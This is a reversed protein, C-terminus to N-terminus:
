KQSEKSTLLRAIIVFDLLDVQGDVNVDAMKASAWDDRDKTKAYRSALQAFDGIDYRGNGNLDGSIVHIGVGIAEFDIVDGHSNGLELNSVMMQYNPKAPTLVKFTLRLVDQNDNIGNKEGLSAYILEKVGPPSHSTEVGELSDMLEEVDVLELSKHDYNLTFGFAYIDKVDKMSVLVEVSNQGEYTFVTDSTFTVTPAVPEEVAVIDEIMRPKLQMVGNYEAVIGTVEVVDGNEFAFNSFMLGTRNDVRVLVSDAGKTAIFEFTGYTNVSELESITVEEMAVIQGEIEKGVEGPSVHLSTPMTGEGIVEISSLNSIQFEDNYIATKGTIRVNDGMKLDNKNSSQFVYTGATTDQLYFGAGGWAGPVSTVIGEITVEANTEAERAKAITVVGLDESPQGEVELIRNDKTYSIPETFSQIFAVTAELDEPGTVMNKGLQSIPLYKAGTATAMFNNTTVTYTAEKDIPTGDPLLIDVVKLTASDWTYSFGAISYDPGYGPSIQANMITELDAGTIELKVLVNNFPQINFLDDYTIPGADLNDRIGGGNMLAFDSDMAWKMGDALLNGLPTDGDNSYDGMMEIEAEGVVENLIPAVQELYKALIAAVEPDPEMENQDAYVIEAAKKVIDGTAPDIELDVDAFAKGYEYAQVILKNDVVADVVMHNHGTFIVDVEDDINKALEAADGIATEGSQEAPLHSLVIIAKVGDAKLESVAQNVAQVPNTFRIDAIGEPIVMDATAPTTVGIFAVKQGEVETVEYAPLILEGTNKYECNACLNSFNMGDYDHTGKGEPHDGGQVMRLFEETGEDFEHNGVTGFDFGIAEMIEVVPEDQLLAAVPSSGGIMDGAHVIFTNPNTAEREKLYAAVYDVRGSNAIAPESISYTQDIKGHLDNLSLLQVSVFDKEEVISSYGNTEAEIESAFFVRKEVPVDAWNEPHVYQKTDSNGVFRLLGKGQERARFVFPLEALPTEPNWIGLEEEKAKKVTAQFQDYDEGDGVPWIFYTTAYGAKVMELNTNLGDSKRIVQALLRGYADTAEEGVKLTIEDGAKLLTNMYDKAAEGHYKQSKDAETTGNYYTEATDINLYRVNTAGLVPTQLKITDGDTVSAVTSTYEGAASPADPQEASLHIDTAKRPLIQYSTYQSLVATVDYWKGEELSGIADTEEMVRLTTSNLEADIFTVNYGGGAPSNPVSQVFGSVNVLSGELPEVTSADQLDAITISQPIPLSINEEIIQIGNTAPVVELLGNYEALEGRVEVKQGEVLNPVETNTSYLNIGATGDQIYTSLKGGGIAANDAIVVGQVIVKSGKSQQRAEAITTLEPDPPPNNDQGGEIITYSSLSKLGPKSFYAELSGTLQVKAQYNSPNDVLNLETRISNNPLQVPLLKLSDTEDPSDAIILNTNALFPPELDNTMTGVIYGEVTATGTNNAIADNVSIVAEEAKVTTSFVSTFNSVLLTFILVLSLFRKFKHNRM